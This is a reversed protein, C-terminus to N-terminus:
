RELSLDDRRRVSNREDDPLAAILERVTGQGALVADPEVALWPVLVFARESTRPHPLTLAPDDSMVPAGASDHVQVVDVDLTRPGWRVDRVRGAAQEAAHAFSLWGSADREPADAVVIANLYDDQAIPGWPATEYVPSVRAANLAAVVTALNALRDGLNSGISLVARTM